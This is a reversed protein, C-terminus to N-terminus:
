KPIKVVQGIQLLNNVMNNHTMLSTVSVSYLKSLSWLTDGSKVTHEIDKIPEPIIRKSSVYANKWYHYNLDSYGVGKSYAHLLKGSGAYISVHSISGDNLGSTDFFVLDGKVLQEFPVNIGKKAQDRSVRPIVIGIEKFVQATFSSCDFSRTDGLLAGWKYPKGLYNEGITIINNSISM